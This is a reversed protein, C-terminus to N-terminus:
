FLRLTENNLMSKSMEATEYDSDSCLLVNQMEAINKDGNNAKSQGPDRFAIASLNQPSRLYHHTKHRRAVDTLAM